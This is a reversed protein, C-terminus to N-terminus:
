YRGYLFDYDPNEELFTVWTRAVGPYLVADAPLFSLYKGKAHSAGLNRAVCAGQNKDLYLVKLKDYKNELKELIEKSGDTSGDDVIIQEINDWDQSMISDVQKEITAGDNFNPTIVSLMPLEKKKFSM